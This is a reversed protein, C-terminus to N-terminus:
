AAVRDARYRHNRRLEGGPRRYEPTGDTAFVIEYDQAHVIRHHAPCILVGDNLNTTGGDAWRSRAHHVVCWSPPRDCSPFSCGRDRHELARRQHTTFLRKTRGHDLVVSKGDLVQPLINLECAMRRAESASIRTGDSLTAAAIKGRLVELDINVTMTAGTGATQPLGDANLNEILICFADAMQRGHTRPDDLTADQATEAPKVQPANIADLAHKLMAGQAEPIVFEGKFTGDKRDAMWFYSQELAREERGQLIENEREDVDDPAFVDSIRDARRGLDKLTLKKADDLLQTECAERDQASVDGPLGRLTKAILEAQGVTIEGRTLAQQTQSAQGLRKARNVVRNGAALDGGFGGALLAGTSTAGLAKAAKTSEMARAVAMEHAAVRAKLRGLQVATAALEVPAMSGYSDTGLADLVGAAAAVTPVSEGHEFM